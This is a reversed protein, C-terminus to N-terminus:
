SGVDCMFANTVCLPSMLSVVNPLVIATDVFCSAIMSIDGLTDNV